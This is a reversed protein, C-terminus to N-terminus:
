RRWKRSAPFFVNVIEDRLIGCLGVSRPGIHTGIVPGMRMLDTEIHLRRRIEEQYDMALQKDSTYLVVPKYQDVRRNNELTEMQKNLCAKKGRSINLLEVYGMPTEIVNPKISLADGFTALPGPIRGGKKLHSLTDLMVQTLIHNRFSKLDQIVQAADLGEDRKERARLVEMSQGYTANLSDFVFLREDNLDAQARIAMECTGSLKSSLCIYLLQDEPGIQDLIGKFDKMLEGPSLRSTTPPNKEKELREYFATLDADNNQPVEENEFAIHIPRIFIGLEEQRDTTFDAGTDTMIHLM